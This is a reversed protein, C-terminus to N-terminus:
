HLLHLPPALTIKRSLKCQASFVKLHIEGGGCRLTGPPPSPALSSVEKSFISQKHLKGFVKLLVSSIFLLVTDDRAKM